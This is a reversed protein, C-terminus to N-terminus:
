RPMAPVSQALEVAKTFPLTALRAERKIAQFRSGEQESPQGSM